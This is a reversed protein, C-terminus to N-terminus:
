LDGIWLELSNLQYDEEEKDGGRGGGREGEGEQKRM